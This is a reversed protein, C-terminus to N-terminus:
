IKYVEDINLKAIFERIEKEKNRRKAYMYLTTFNVDSLKIANEYIHILENGQYILYIKDIFLDVLIKELKPVIIDKNKKIPSKYILKKIILLRENNLYLLKNNTLDEEMLITFKNEFKEKLLFAVVEIGLKEVEVVIYTSIVHHQNFNNLNSTNWVAINIKPYEKKISKYIKIEDEGYKINYPIYEKFFYIDKNIPAIVGNKKLWNIVLNINENKINKYIANYEEKIQTKNIIKKEFYKTKLITALKKYRFYEM